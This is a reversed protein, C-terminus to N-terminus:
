LGLFFPESPLGAMSWTTDSDGPPLAPLVLMYKAWGCAPHYNHMVGPGRYESTSYCGWQGLLLVLFVFGLTRM